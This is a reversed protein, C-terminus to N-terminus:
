ASVLDPQKNQKLQRNPVFRMCAVARQLARRSTILGNGTLVFKFM